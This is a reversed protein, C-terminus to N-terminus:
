FAGSLNAATASINSCKSANLSFVLFHSTFWSKNIIAIDLAIGILCYIDFEM